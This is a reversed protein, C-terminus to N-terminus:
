LAKWLEDTAPHSAESPAPEGAIFHELQFLAAEWGSGTARADDRDPSDFHELELLTGDRDRELRLEVQSARGGGYKWTARLRRPAECALIELSVKEPLAVDLVVAGGLALEGEAKGLWRPLEAPDSFAAWIREPSAAFRRRILSSWAGDRERLERGSDEAWAFYREVQGLRAAYSQELTSHTSWFGRAPAGRLEDDLIGTHTDWGAAVSAVTTSRSLRRHVLVLQVVEGKQTLEFTVESDQGDAPWSLKLLRPPDCVLVRGSLSSRSEKRYREPAEKEHSLNRHEFVLTFAGGPRLEMPGDALWRKRLEPVTLYEWVREITGPFLRTLRVAGKEIIEAFDSVKGERADRAAEGASCRAAGEAKGHCGSRRARRM